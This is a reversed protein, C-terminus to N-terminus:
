GIRYLVFTLGRGIEELTIGAPIEVSPLRIEMLYDFSQVDGYGL